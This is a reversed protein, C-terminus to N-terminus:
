LKRWHWAYEREIPWSKLGAVARLSGDPAQVFGITDGKRLNMPGPSAPGLDGGVFLAYSGDESVVLQRPATRSRGDFHVVTKGTQLACGSSTVTSILSLLLVLMLKATSMM